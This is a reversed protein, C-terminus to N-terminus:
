YPQSQKRSLRMSGLDAFGPIQGLIKAMFDQPLRSRDCTRISDHLCDEKHHGSSSSEGSSTCGAIPLSQGIPVPQSSNTKGNKVQPHGEIFSLVVSSIGPFDALYTNIKAHNSKELAKSLVALGDDEYSAKVKKKQPTCFKSM